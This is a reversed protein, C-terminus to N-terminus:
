LRSSRTSPAWRLIIASSYSCLFCLVLVHNRWGERANHRRALLYRAGGLRPHASALSQFSPARVSAAALGNEGDPGRPCLQLQRQVQGSSCDLCDATGLLLIPKCNEKSARVSSLQVRLNTVM